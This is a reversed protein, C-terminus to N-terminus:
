LSHPHSSPSLPPKASYSSIRLFFFALTHRSMLRGERPLVQGLQGEENVQNGVRGLIHEVHWGGVREDALGDRVVADDFLEATTTHTHNVLSLVYLQVAKDDQLEQRVLNRFVRLGEAAELAFRLGRRGQIM